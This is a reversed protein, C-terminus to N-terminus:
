LHGRQVIKVKLEEARLKRGFFSKHACIAPLINGDDLVNVRQM